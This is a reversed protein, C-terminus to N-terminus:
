YVPYNAQFLYLAFGTLMAMTWSLLMDQRAMFNKHLPFIRHLCFYVVPRMLMVVVLWVFSYWQVLFMTVILAREIMGYWKEFPKYRGAKGFFTSKFSRIMFFGNYTAIILAILYAVVMDNCYIRVFFNTEQPPPLYKLNTFFLLSITAAHSLQDIVYAWFGHKVSSYSLKISDQLWHTLGIMLIFAWVMPKGLFPWCMLACCAIVILAHPIIGALGKNKLKFISDFQLPFDAICHALLLRLFIFMATM